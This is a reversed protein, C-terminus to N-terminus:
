EEVKEVVKLIICERPVVAVIENLNRIVISASDNEICDGKIIYEVGGAIIKYSNM